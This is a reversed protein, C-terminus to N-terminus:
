DEEDRDCAFLSMFDSFNSALRLWEGDDWYIVSPATPDDRFDFCYPEGSSTGGFWVIKSIDATDPASDDEQALAPLGQFRNEERYLRSLVATRGDITELDTYLELPLVNLPQGSADVADKKPVWQYPLDPQSILEVFAEPLRLGNVTMM